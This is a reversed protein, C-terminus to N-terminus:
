THMEKELDAPKDTVTSFVKVMADTVFKELELYYPYKVDCVPAPEGGRYPEFEGGSRKRKGREFLERYRRPSIGHFHQFQVAPYSQYRGRDSSEIQISDSHLDLALSKPYPELFFVKAIGASVIHKACMHCPFTTCYLIGDKLAHGLRAADSIASMEAHVIRGYELADMFQSDQVPLSDIVESVNKTPDIIKVLESLIERKRQDNSDFRRIYERDDHLEDCWYTGGTAKPVENSGLSLVEGRESFVAAGVQRSLDLTRLAAAKAVFMGYELHTPSISNSGFLLEGFRDVQREVPQEADTNIIFDADHFIKSVRQGHTNSIEHEDAQTLTEAKDRFRQPGSTNDDSAFRRSLYDVRAGRRSYVSVQFFLDGYVSRLLDIEEKRKFQHLIYAIKSYNNSGIADQARLRRKIVRMITAAALFANDSFHERLQDGYAIHTEYREYLPTKKLQSKPRVYKQFVSFVDTVKIEVVHYDRTELYKRLASISQTIEAGMPAVFGFFLEPFKIPKISAGM